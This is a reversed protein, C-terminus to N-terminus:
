GMSLIILKNEFHNLKAVSKIDNRPDSGSSLIFLIPKMPTSEELIHQVVTPLFIIYKEGM